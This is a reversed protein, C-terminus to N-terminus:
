RSTEAESRFRYYGKTWSSDLSRILEIFEKALDIVVASAEANM